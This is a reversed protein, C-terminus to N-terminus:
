DEGIGSVASAAEIILYDLDAGAQDIHNRARLYQQQDADKTALRLHKDLSRRKIMREENTHMVKDIM